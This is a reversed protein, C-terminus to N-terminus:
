GNKEIETAPPSLTNGGGGLEMVADVLAALVADRDRLGSPSAKMEALLQIGPSVKREAVPEATEGGGDQDANPDTGDAQGQLEPDTGETRTRKTTPAPANKSATKAM